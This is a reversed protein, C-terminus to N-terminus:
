PMRLIENTDLSYVAQYTVPRHRFNASFKPKQHNKPQFQGNSRTKGYNAQSLLKQSLLCSDM